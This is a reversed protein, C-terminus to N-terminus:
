QGPTADPRRAPHPNFSHGPHGRSQPAPLQMRGEPRTLISVHPPSIRYDLIAHQMRGEPRTLISVKTSTRILYPNPTADPRRAPHPNFCTRARFVWPAPGAQQMRGEPRTLISVNGAAFGAATAIITADPRRAPHPNFCASGQGTPAQRSWTADPRRAPHPNFRKALTTLALGAPNCGAKQGPSSQFGSLTPISLAQGDQQMRGEPRTLISVVLDQNRPRPEVCRQMRGEPRTLISVSGPRQNDGLRFPQMRGEPRTLISVRTDGDDGVRSRSNCGAKQGPSSQFVWSAPLAAAAARPQMRGEPRTLISVRLKRGKQPGMNPQM